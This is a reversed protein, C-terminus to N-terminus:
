QWPVVDPQQLQRGGDLVLGALVPGPGLVPVPVPVPVLVLGPEPEPVPVPSIPAVAAVAVAVAAAAVVLVGEVFDAEEPDFQHASGVALNM